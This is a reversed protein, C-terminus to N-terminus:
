NHVFNNRCDKSCCDELIKLCSECAIFRKDCSTLACNHYDASPIRCIICQSIPESKNHSDIDIAARTDFVFCKGQWHANGCEKGYNLIGGHLQYVENFGNEKLFASAKECRVGGTCYTVIKKGKLDKISDLKGPLQRFTRIPLTVANEFKGIKTEYRNRADVLILEEKSGLLKKLERPEVYPAANRLDVEHRFAVIEKKINVKLKRFTHQTVIGEKFQMDSFREDDLFSRKYRDIEGDSGSLCGNIGEQAILVTGLLSLSSCLEAQNKRFSDVDDIGAYKYFLINKMAILFLLLKFYKQNIAQM